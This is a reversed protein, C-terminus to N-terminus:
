LVNKAEEKKYEAYKDGFLFELDRETLFHNLCAKCPLHHFGGNRQPVRMIETKFRVCRNKWPSRFRCNGCINRGSLTRQYLIGSDIKFQITQKLRKRM